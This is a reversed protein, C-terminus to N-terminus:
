FMPNHFSELRVLCEALSCVTAGEGYPYASDVPAVIFAEDLDLDEKASWFGRAVSPSTAAKCEIGIRSTGKQLVLDIEAGNSTRYYGHEVRDPISSLITEIVLGEWSDGFVPHAFLDDM